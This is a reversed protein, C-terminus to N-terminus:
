RGPRRVIRRRCYEGPRGNRGLFAPHLGRSRLFRGSGSQDPTRLFQAGYRGVLAYGSSHLANIEQILNGALEDLNALYQPVIEDRIDLWGGIKGGALEASLDTPIGNWYIQEGVQSLEWSQTGNVLLKGNTTTITLSGNNDEYHNIGILSAMKEVLNNRQDRLDNATTGDSESAVIKENLSAIQRATQNLDLISAGLNTNMSQGVQNLDASM